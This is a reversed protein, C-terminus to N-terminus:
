HIASEVHQRVAGLFSRVAVHAALGIVRWRARLLREAAEDVASIRLEATLRSSKGLGPRARVEFAIRCGGEDAFRRLEDISRAPRLTADVDGLRGVLGVLVRQGSRDLVPVGGHAGRRSPPASGLRRPMRSLWAFPTHEGALSQAAALATEPLRRVTISQRMRVEHVPLLDDLSPERDARGTDLTSIPNAASSPACDDLFM